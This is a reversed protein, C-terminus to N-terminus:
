GAVDPVCFRGDYLLVGEPSIEFQTKVKNLAVDRYQILLPDEFQFQKVEQIISSEAVARVSIGFDGSDALRVGLSALQHIDRVM